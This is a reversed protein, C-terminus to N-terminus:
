GKDLGRDAASQVFSQDLVKSLDFDGMKENSKGLTTVAEAFYEPKSYPLSPFEKSFFDYAANMGPDDDSKLNKKMISVSTVRDQKIKAISQVVSDVFKQVVDRRQTVFSRQFYISGGTTYVPLDAMNVLAHAGQQEAVLHSPPSLMTGVVAGGTLAALSTNQAGTATITVDKDPDLGWQRLAAHIALDANGGIAPVGVRQGKLDAPVKIKSSVEFVYEFKPGTTATILLDAGNTIASLAEAGGGAVAQV